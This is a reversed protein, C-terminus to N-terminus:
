LDEDLPDGHRHRLSDRRHRYREDSLSALARRRQLANYSERDQRHRWYLSPFRLLFAVYRPLDHAVVAFRTLRQPLRAQPQRPIAISGEGLVLLVGRPLAGAMGEAWVAGTTRPLDVLILHPRATRLMILLQDLTEIDREFGPPVAYAGCVVLGENNAALRRAVRHLTELRTGILFLSRGTRAAEAALATLLKSTEVRGRFPVDARDALWGFVRSAPVVIDAERLSRALLPDSVMADALLADAAVITRAPPPESWGIAWAVIDDAGADAV